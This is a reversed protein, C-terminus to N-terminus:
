RAQPFLARLYSVHEENRSQFAETRHHWLQIDQSSPMPHRGSNATIENLHRETAAVYRERLDHIRQCTVKLKRTYEQVLVATRDAPRERGPVVGTIRRQRSM